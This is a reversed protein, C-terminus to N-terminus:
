RDSKVPMTRASSGVACFTWLTRFNLSMSHRTAVDVDWHVGIMDLLWERFM